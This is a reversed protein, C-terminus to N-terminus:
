VTFMRFEKQTEPPFLETMAWVLADMRDPSSEGPLWSTMQTELEPFQGAHSVRGQEYLAAIPEARTHKGRSAWVTKIPLRPAITRLVAEVMEGGNNREVIVRDAKLANYLGAVARAWETPTGKISADAIVYGRGDVGIGCAVIGTEDSDDGSTAAPDVGIVIRRLPPHATLRFGEAAFMGWQWLAGPTDELLEGDLEQRGLRTGEYKQMITKLFTPALNAANDLTRGRTIVVGSTSRIRRILPTPKPTGTIVTQPNNGLRLGFEYMDYTEPYKWSAIEDLWGFDHQPGRLREPEEASYLTAMAGNPWTLRRKSPEYLPLNGPSAIALLGSEGEVMVDRADSATPAILAMRGCLGKEARRRVEEAGTRTKGWGRGAQILWIPWDGPPAFQDPRGWVQWDYALAAQLHLPLSDLLATRQEPPLAALEQGISLSM